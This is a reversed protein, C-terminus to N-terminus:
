KSIKQALTAWGPSSEPQGYDIDMGVDHRTGQGIQGCAMAEPRHQLHAFGTLCGEHDIAFWKAFYIRAGPVHLPSHAVHGRVAGVDL